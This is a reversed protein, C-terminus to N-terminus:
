HQPSLIRVKSEYFHVLPLNIEKLVKLADPYKTLKITIAEKISNKFNEDYSWDKGRLERGKNKANFGWTSRLQDKNDHNSSLWYWYAEISNFDGDKTTIPSYAFNSLFRGIKTKGKSYVNIFHIGDNEPKLEM